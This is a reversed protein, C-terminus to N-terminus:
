DDASLLTQYRANNTFFEEAWSRGRLMFGRVRATLTMESADVRLMQAPCRRNFISRVHDAMASGHPPLLMTSGLQGGRFNCLDPQKFPPNRQPLQCFHEAHARRGDGKNLPPLRPCVRSVGESKMQISGLAQLRM